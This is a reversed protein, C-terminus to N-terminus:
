AAPHGVPYRADLALNTKLVNVRPQGVFGLLRCKTNADIVAQVEAVSAG